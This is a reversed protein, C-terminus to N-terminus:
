LLKADALLASLDLCSPSRGTVANIWDETVVIYGEDQYGLLFPNSFAVEEGWTDGRGGAAGEGSRTVCHGGIPALGGAFNWNLSTYCQEPFQIGMMYGGFTASAWRCQALSNPDVAASALIKHVEKSGDAMTVPIGEYQWYALLDTLVTGKDTPNDGPPGAAPNFGTVASYLSLADEPTPDVPRGTNYGQMQILHLAADEACCGWLKNGLARRKAAPVAKGWGIPPVSWQSQRDLYNGLANIGVRRRQPRKGLQNRM